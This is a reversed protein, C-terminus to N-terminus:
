LCNRIEIWKNKMYINPTSSIAQDLLKLAKNKDDINKNKFYENAALFGKSALIFSEKSQSEIKLRELEHVFEESHTQMLSIIADLQNECIDILIEFSEKTKEYEKALLFITGYHILFFNTFNLALGSLTRDNCEIVRTFNELAKDFTKSIINIDPNTTYNKMGEIMNNWAIILFGMADLQTDIIDIPAFGTELKEWMKDLKNVSKYWFKMNKIILDYAEDYNEKFFEYICLYLLGLQKLYKSMILFSLKNGEDVSIYASNKLKKSNNIVNEGIIKYFDADGTIFAKMMEISTTINNMNCELSLLLAEFNLIRFNYLISYEPRIKSREQMERKFIEFARITRNFYEKSKKLQGANLNLNLNRFYYFAEIGKYFPDGFHISPDGSLIFALPTYDDSIISIFTEKLIRLIDGIPVLTLYDYFLLGILDGVIDSVRWLAGIYGIAGKEIFKSALSVNGTYNVSLGALCANAFILPNGDLKKPIDNITLIDDYLVLFPGEEDDIGGHGTFHVLNVDKLKDLLLEKVPKKLDKFKDLDFKIGFKKEVRKRSRKAEEIVPSGSLFTYPIKHIDFFLAVGTSEERSFELDGRPDAVILAKSLKHGKLSFIISSTALFSTDYIDDGVIRGINYKTSISEPGFRGEYFILEFPVNYDVPFLILYQAFDLVIRPINKTLIKGLYTFYSILKKNDMLNEDIRELLKGITKKEDITNDEIIYCVTNKSNSYNAGIIANHWNNESITSLIVSQPGNVTAEILHLQEYTLTTFTKLFKDILEDKTIQLKELFLEYESDDPDLYERLLIKNVIYRTLFLMQLLVVREKIPYALRVVQFKKSFKKEYNKPIETYDGMLTILQPKIKQIVDMYKPKNLIIRSNLRGIIPACSINVFDNDPLVMIEMFYPKRDYLEDIALQLDITKCKYYQKVVKIEIGLKEIKNKLTENINEFTFLVKIPSKELIDLFTEFSPIDSKDTWFIPSYLSHIPFTNNNTKIKGFINCGIAAIAGEKDEKDILFGIGSFNLSDIFSRSFFMNIHIEKEENPLLEKELQFESSKIENRIIFEPLKIFFLYYQDYETYVEDLKEFIQTYDHLAKLSWKLKVKHKKHDNNKIKLIIEPAPFVDHEKVIREIICNDYQSQIKPSTSIAEFKNYNKGDINVSLSEEIDILPIFDTNMWNTSINKILNDDNFKIEFCKSSIQNM